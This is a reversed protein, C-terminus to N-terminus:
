RTEIGPPVRAFLGRLDLLVELILRLLLDPSVAGCAYEDAEQEIEHRSRM